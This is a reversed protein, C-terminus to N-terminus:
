DAPTGVPVPKEAALSNGAPITSCTSPAPVGAFRAQVWAAATTLWTIGVDTHGLTGFETYEVANGAACYKRAISRVDGTVMVGDGTGYKASPQTGESVGYAGQLIQFPITPSPALGANVKNLVAALGPISDPNAYQPKVLQQFTLGPYKGEADGIGANKTAGLVAKGYTSLYPSLDMAFGRELGNIALLAVGSWKTSGNVYKLNHAPDVYVGGETAGVLHRNIDPAYSPALQAAWETAISGGSYGMMAFDTNPGLGLASSKGVARMSDLTMYGNEPGVTYHPVQGEFDPVNVDHGASLLSTFALQEEAFTQAGPSTSGAISRSPSDAVNLSDYFSNYTVVKHTVDPVPSHIVSTVNAVAQGTQTRTRYLLQTVQVPTAIGQVHYTITRSKLVTGPAFSALTRAGTYSYFPGTREWGGKSQPTAAHAPLSGTAIAGATVLLAATAVGYRRLPTTRM